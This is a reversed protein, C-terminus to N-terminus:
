QQAVPATEAPPKLNGDTALTFFSGYGRQKQRWRFHDFPQLVTTTRHGDLQDPHRKGQDLYCRIFVSKHDSPLAEVNEVYRQWKDPEMVYQEVNSVYFANVPLDRRRLEAAIKTFAHQGAFDGVVPIVRHDRQLAQVRRFAAESALFGTAKGRPDRAKLLEGLSPYDRGGQELLVFELELQDDFFARHTRELTQRDKASLEIGHKELRERLRQHSAQFHKRDPKAELARAIVDDISTKAPADREAPHPRGLLLALFHSRSRAEEFIAKYLLQELANQRRIDVIFVLEPELEAIYSFNQEPGVGIYAGGKRARQELLPMVQLYSTENSVFNDSFFYADPESLERFLRALETPALPERPAPAKSASSASPAPASAVPTPPQAAPPAPAPDDCGAIGSGFLLVLALSTRLRRHAVPALVGRSSLRNRRM